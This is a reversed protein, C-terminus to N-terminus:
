LKSKGVLKQISSVILLGIGFLSFCHLTVKLLSIVLTDLEKMLMKATLMAILVILSSLLYGLLRISQTTLIWLVFPKLLVYCIMLFILIVLYFVYPDILQLSFKLRKLSEILGTQDDYVYM